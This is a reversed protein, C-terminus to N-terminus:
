SKKIKKGKSINDKWWLPQLNTYHFCIKQQLPCTLDFANCPIIHNIHWGYRSHNEWTMGETFQKELHNRCEDVTCGLLEITKNQKEGYQCKIAMTIRSRITNILKYLPDNKLRNRRYKSNGERKEEKTKRKEEKIKKKKDKEEKIKETHKINYKIKRKRNDERSKDLNQHYKEKDKQKRKEIDSISLSAADIKYKDKMCIKCTYNYGRSRSKDKYFNSEDLEKKCKNCIEM